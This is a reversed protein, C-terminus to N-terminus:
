RDIAQNIITQRDTLV